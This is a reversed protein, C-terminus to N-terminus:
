KWQGTQTDLQGVTFVKIMGEAWHAGNFVTCVAVYAGPKLNVVLRKSKGPQLDGSRFVSGGSSAKVITFNHPFQGRNEFEFTTRGGALVSPRGFQASKLKAGYIRFEKAIDTKNATGLYVEVDAGGGAKRGAAGFATLPAAVAATVALAAAALVLRRRL